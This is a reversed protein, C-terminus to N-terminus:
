VLRFTNKNIMKQQMQKQIDDDLFVSRQNLHNLSNGGWKLNTRTKVFQVSRIKQQDGKTSDAKTFYKRFFGLIVVWKLNTM